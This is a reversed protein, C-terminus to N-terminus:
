NTPLSLPDGTTILSTILIEVDTDGLNAAHHVMTEAEFVTDGADLEVTAPGTVTETPTSSGRGIGLIGQEVTYTLTGAQIHSEQQGPHHHSAIEVGAPVVVRYLYMTYGPAEPPEVQALVESFVKGPAVTTGSTAASTASSAGSGDSSTDDSCGLALCVVVLLPLALRTRRTV